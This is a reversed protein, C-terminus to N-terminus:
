SNKTIITTTINKCNNIEEKYLMITNEDKNKIAINNYTENYLWYCENSKLYNYKLKSFEITANNNNCWEATKAYEIDNLNEKNLIKGIM